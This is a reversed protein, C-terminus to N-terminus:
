VYVLSSSVLGANNCVLYLQLLLELLSLFCVEECLGDVIETYPHSFYLAIQFQLSQFFFVLSLDFTNLKSLRLLQKVVVDKDIIRKSLHDWM